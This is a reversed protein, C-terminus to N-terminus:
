FLIKQTEDDVVSSEYDSNKVEDHNHYHECGKNYKVSKSEFESFPCICLYEINDNYSLWCCKKCKFIKTDNIDEMFDMMETQNQHIIIENENLM